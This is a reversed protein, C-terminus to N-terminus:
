RGYKDKVVTGIGAAMNQRYIILRYIDHRGENMEFEKYLRSPENENTIEALM